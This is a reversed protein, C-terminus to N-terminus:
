GLRLRLLIQLLCSAGGRSKKIVGRCEDVLHPDHVVNARVGRRADLPKDHQGLTSPSFGPSRASTTFTQTQADACMVTGEARGGRAKSLYASYKACGQAVIYAIPAAQNCDNRGGSHIVLRNGGAPDFQYWRSLIGLISRSVRRQFSLLVDALDTAGLLVAERM